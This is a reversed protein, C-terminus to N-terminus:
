TETGVQNSYIKNNNRNLSSYQKILIKLVSTDNISISVCCNKYM